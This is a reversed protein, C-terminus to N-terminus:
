LSWIDSLNIPTDTDGLGREDTNPFSINAAHSNISETALKRIDSLLKENYKRYLDIVKILEEKEKRLNGMEDQLKKYETTTIIKIM